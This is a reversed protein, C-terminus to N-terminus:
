AWVLLEDKSYGLFAGFAVRDRTGAVPPVVHLRNSNFVYLDGARLTLNLHRSRKFRESREFGKVHVGVSHSLGSVDCDEILEEIHPDFLAVDTGIAAPQLMLLASFQYRFRM